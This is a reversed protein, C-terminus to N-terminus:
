AHPDSIGLCNCSTFNGLNDCTKVHSAIVSLTDYSLWDPNLCWTEIGEKGASTFQIKKKAHQKIRIPIMQFTPRTVSSFSSISLACRSMAPRPQICVLWPRMSYFTHLRTSPISANQVYGTHFLCPMEYRCCVPCQIIYSTFRRRCRSGHRGRKRCVVAHFRQPLLHSLNM